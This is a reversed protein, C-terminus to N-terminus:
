SDSSPQEQFHKDWQEKQKKQYDAKWEMTQIQNHLENIELDLQHKRKYLKQLNKRKIKSYLKRYKDILELCTEHDDKQQDIQKSTEMLEGVLNEDIQKQVLALKRERERTAKKLISIILESM